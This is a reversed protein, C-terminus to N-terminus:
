LEPLIQNVTGSIDRPFKRRNESKTTHGGGGGLGVRM